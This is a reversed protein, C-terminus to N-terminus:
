RKEERADVLVKSTDVRASMTMRWTALLHILMRQESQSLGSFAESIRRVAHPAAQQLRDLGAETLAVRTIRRDQEDRRRKVLGDHALGGILQTVNTPTVTLSRAIESMSLSDSDAEFLVRLISYRAGSLGFEARYPTVVQILSSYAHTIMRATELPLRDEIQGLEGYREAGLHVAEETVFGDSAISFKNM